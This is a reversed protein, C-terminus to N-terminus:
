TNLLQYTIAVSFAVVGAVWCAIGWFLQDAKRRSIRMVAKHASDPSNAFYRYRRLSFVRLAWAMAITWWGLPLLWMVLALPAKPVYGLVLAAAAIVWGVLSAILVGIAAVQASRMSEVVVLRMAGLWYRDEDTPIEGTPIGNGAGTRLTDDAAM